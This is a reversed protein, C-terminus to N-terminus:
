FIGTLVDLIRRHIQKVRSESYGMREGIEMLSLGQLYHLDLIEREKPLLNVRSLLDEYSEPMRRAKNIQRRMRKRTGDM